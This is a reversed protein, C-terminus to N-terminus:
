ARGPITVAEGSATTAMFALAPTMAAIQAANRQWRMREAIRAMQRARSTLIGGKRDGARLSKFKNFNLYVLTESDV